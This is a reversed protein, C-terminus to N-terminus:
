SSGSAVFTLLTEGADSVLTTSRLDSGGRRSINQFVVEKVEKQFLERAAYKFIFELYGGASGSVGYLNGQDDINNFLQDIPAEPLSKFDVGQDRIMDVIEMSALVTDVDRTKLIDNYFDDRSAELKKDYCPMICAHYIQDGSTNLRQSFYEKVITGMVQQPSKTSSIYPLVFDGHTKEAYCIWGPCESALMPLPAQIQKRHRAVFEAASELLSFERSFSTDFVYHVGLQKFFTILKRHAELISIKYYTAISARSQPSISVVFTKDKKALAELFEKSSQATILVTEASTV